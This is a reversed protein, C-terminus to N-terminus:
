PCLIVERETDDNRDALLRLLLRNNSPNRLTLGKHKVLYFILRNPNM